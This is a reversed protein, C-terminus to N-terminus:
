DWSFNFRPVKHIHIYFMVVAGVQKTIVSLYRVLQSSQAVGQYPNFKHHPQQQTPSQQQQPQQQQPQQQPQQQKPNRSKPSPIQPATYVFCSIVTVMVNFLVSFCLTCYKPLPPLVHDKLVVCAPWAM